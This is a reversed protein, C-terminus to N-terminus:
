LYPEIKEDQFDSIVKIVYGCIVCFLSQMFISTFQEDSLIVGTAVAYLKMLVLLAAFIFAFALCILSIDSLSQLFDANHKKM